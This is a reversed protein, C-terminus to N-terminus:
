PDGGCNCYSPTSFYVSRTASANQGGSTVTVTFNTPCSTIPRTISQTTYGGPSWSYTYSGNGGSPNASLTAYSGKSPVCRPGSLSVALPVSHSEFYANSGSFQCNIESFEGESLFTVVIDPNAGNNLNEYVLRNSSSATYIWYTVNPSGNFLGGSTGDFNGYWNAAHTQGCGYSSSVSTSPAYTIAGTQTNKVYFPVGAPCKIYVEHAALTNIPLVAEGSVADLSDMPQIAEESCGLMVSLAVFTPVLPSKMRM